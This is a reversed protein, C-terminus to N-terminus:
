QPAHGGQVGVAVPRGGGNVASGDVGTVRRLALRVEDLNAGWPVVASTAGDFEVGRELLCCKSLTATARGTRLGRLEDKLVSVAKEMREESDFLIEDSTM